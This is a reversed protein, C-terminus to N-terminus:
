PIDSDSVGPFDFSSATSFADVSYLQLDQIVIEGWPNDINRNGPSTAAQMFPEDVVYDFLHRVRAITVLPVFKGSENCARSQSPIFALDFLHDCLHDCLPHYLGDILFLIRFLLFSFPTFPLSGPRRSEATEECGM